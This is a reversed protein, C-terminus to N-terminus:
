WQFDHRALLANLASGDHELGYAKSLSRMDCTVEVHEDSVPLSLGHLLLNVGLRMRIYFEAWHHALLPPYGKKVFAEREEIFAKYAARLLATERPTLPTTMPHKREEPCRNFDKTHALSYPM